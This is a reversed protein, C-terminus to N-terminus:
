NSSSLLTIVRNDIEIIREDQLKKLERFLSPRQVGLYDALQKKSIPLLITPSGQIFSQKKLYDLLNERLTKQTLMTIKQNMGRSNMSLSKIYQMVFHYNHLLEMVANQTIHLLECPTVSYINLPYTNQDGFLLNAGIISNKQFEFMKIASGNESLSYAVLRGSLVVDLVTCAEHQLHVTIGKTYRRSFIQNESYYKSLVASNIDSLLPLQYLEEISM